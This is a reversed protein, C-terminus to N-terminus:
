NTKFFNLFFNFILLLFFLFALIIKFCTFEWCADFIQYLQDEIELHHIVLHLFDTIICFFHRQTFEGFTVDFLTVFDQTIDSFAKLFSIGLTFNFFKGGIEIGVNRM